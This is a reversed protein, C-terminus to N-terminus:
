PRPGPKDMDAWSVRTERTQKEIYFAVLVRRMDHFSKHADPDKGIKEVVEAWAFGRHRWRSQYVQNCYYCAMGNQKGNREERGWSICQDVGLAEDVPDQVISISM